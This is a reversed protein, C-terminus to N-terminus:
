KEFLENLEGQSIPLLDLDIFASDEVPIRQALLQGDKIGVAIISTNEIIPIRGLSIKSKDFSKFSTFSNFGTYVFYIIIGDVEQTNTIEFDMKTPNQVYRDINLWGLNNLSISYGITKEIKDYGGYEKQYISDQKRWLEQYYPLSDMTVEHPVDIGYEQDYRLVTFFSEATSWSMQGISDIEGNFVKDQRSFELPFRISINTSDKLSLKEGNKKFEVFIVGSSELLENGDTLTQINSKILDSIKYFEKLELTIVDTSDVDFYNRYFYIRTGNKGIIEKRTITDLNFFQSEVKDDNQFPDFTKNASNKEEVCSNLIFLGFILIGIKKM